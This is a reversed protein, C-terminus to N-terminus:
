QAKDGLRPPERGDELRNQLAGREGGGVPGAIAEPDGSGINLGPNAFDGPIGAKRPM